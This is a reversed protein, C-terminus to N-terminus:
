GRGFYYLYIDELDPTVKQSGRPPRQGDKMVLRVRIRGDPLTRLNSVRDDDLLAQSLNKVDVEYVRDKGSQLLKSPDDFRIMKGHDLLLIDNAISEIDSVVHTAIITIKSASERAILNRMHIRQKPDLGATPEDLVLIDPQGLLTAALLLRRKMGGSYTGAKRSAEESLEVLKLYDHIQRKAAQPPLRKLAAMYCMFDYGSFDEYIRCTQPMYAVRKGFRRGMRFISEGEFRIDGSTPALNGTLINMLTSKGAGNPGLIGHIGTGIRLSFNELARKKGYHKTLAEFILQM